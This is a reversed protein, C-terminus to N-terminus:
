LARDAREPVREAQLVAEQRWALMQVTLPPLILERRVLLGLLDRRPREALLAEPIPPLPIFLGSAEFVGPAVGTVPPLILLSEGIGAQKSDGIPSLSFL